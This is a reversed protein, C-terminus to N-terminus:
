GHSGNKFIFRDLVRREDEGLKFPVQTYPFYMNGEVKLFSSEVLADVSHFESSVMIAAIPLIEDASYHIRDYRYAIIGIYRHFKFVLINDTYSIYSSHIASLIQVIGWLTEDTKGYLTRRYNSVMHKVLLRTYEDLM